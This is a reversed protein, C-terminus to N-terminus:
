WPPKLPQVVPCSRRGDSMLIGADPARESVNAIPPRPPARVSDIAMQKEGVAAMNEGRQRGRIEGNLYLASSNGANTGQNNWASPESVGGFTNVPATVFENYKSFRYVFEPAVGWVYAKQALKEIKAPDTLPSVSGLTTSRALAGTPMLGAVAIALSVVAMTWGRPTHRYTAARREDIGAPM